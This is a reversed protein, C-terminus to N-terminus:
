AIYVCLSLCYVCLTHVHYLSVCQVDGLSVRQTCLVFVCADCARARSHARRTPAYLLHASFIDLFPGFYDPM